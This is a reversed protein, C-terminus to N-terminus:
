NSVYNKTRVKINLSKLKIKNKPYSMGMLLFKKLKKKIFFGERIIEFLM